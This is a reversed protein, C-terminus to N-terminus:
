CFTHVGIGGGVVVGEKGREVVLRWDTLGGLVGVVVVCVDGGIVM